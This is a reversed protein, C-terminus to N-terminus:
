LVTMKDPVSTRELGGELVGVSAEDCAQGRPGLLNYGDGGSVGPLPAPPGGRQAKGKPVLVGEWLACCVGVGM